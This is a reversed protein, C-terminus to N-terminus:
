RGDDPEEKRSEIASVKASLMDLKSELAVLAWFQFHAVKSFRYLFYAMKVSILMVGMEFFLRYSFEDAAFLAGTFALLVVTFFVGNMVIDRRKAKGGFAGLGHIITNQKKLFGKLEEENNMDMMPEKPKKM